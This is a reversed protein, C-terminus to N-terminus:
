VGLARLEKDWPPRYPRTLMASAAADGVIEQRASDWQLKRGVRLSINALHCTTSVAHSSELDSNPTARSKVCELFNKAHEVYQTKWDGSKDQAPECWQAGAPEPVPQPGGVPHGGLIKAFTNTPAVKPDALIEYGDRGLLMTGKTGMFTLAGMSTSGPGASVERFQVVAPFSPYEIIANQMDPVEGNDRLFWRGGSSSVARPGPIGFIWHVVDLSHHGLNTMQGGSYDWFWRFHYLGRNPNYPRSPAPGLLMEWDLEPPATGDPPNGIGPSINRFFNCEVSVIDGIRGDRLLQKAARYHPASRQQTGVQV